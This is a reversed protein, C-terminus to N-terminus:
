KENNQMNKLEDIAQDIVSFLGEWEAYYEGGECWYRAPSFVYEEDEDSVEDWNYDNESIVIVGEYLYVFHPQFRYLGSWDDCACPDIYLNSWPNEIYVKSVGANKFAEKLAKFAEQGLENLRNEFNAM